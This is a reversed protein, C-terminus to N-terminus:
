GKHNSLLKELKQGGVVNSLEFTASSKLELRPM